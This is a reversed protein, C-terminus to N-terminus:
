AFKEKSFKFLGYIMNSALLDIDNLYKRSSIQNSTWQGSHFVQHFTLEFVQPILRNRSSVNEEAKLAKHHTCLRFRHTVQHSFTLVGFM